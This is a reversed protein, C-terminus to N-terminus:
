EKNAHALDERGSYNIALDRFILDVVSTCMKIKDHLRVLGNPEFKSFTFVDTYENLPVGYQLGLSVSIAFCNLLGKLLSGEKNIDLFIEGLTGDEYEGTRLYMSQGSVKVKQTYGKRKHPLLKREM